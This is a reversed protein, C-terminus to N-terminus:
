LTVSLMCAQQCLFALCLELFVRPIDIPGETIVLLRLRDCVESIVWIGRGVMGGSVRGCGLCDVGQYSM